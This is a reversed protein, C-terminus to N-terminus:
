FAKADEHINSYTKIVDRNSDHYKQGKVNLMDFMFPHYIPFSTQTLNKAEEKLTVVTTLLVIDEM